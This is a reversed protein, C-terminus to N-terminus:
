IFDWFKIITYLVFLSFSKFYFTYSYIMIFDSAKLYIVIDETVNTSLLSHWSFKLILLIKNSVLLNYYFEVKVGSDSSVAYRLLNPCYVAVPINYLTSNQQLHRLFWSVTETSQSLRWERVTPHHLNAM